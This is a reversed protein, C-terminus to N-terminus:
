YSSFTAGMRIMAAVAEDDLQQLRARVWPAYHDQTTKISTHTLLKSVNDLHWGLLLLEVAYTDRLMHSHFRMSKGDEDKFDLYANLKQIMIDYQTSLTEWKRGTNWFFHTPRFRPRAPSLDQLAQVVCDPVSRNEIRAGTKKTTLTLHKGVLGTRPLMLCDLIRLGAWRQLQFLAKLELAYERTEGRVEAIFPDVAALLQGFQAPTLPQTRVTNLRIPKLLAAPDLKLNGTGVCWRCFSKLRSQFHSASTKGIRSYEKEADPSWTGRWLDLADSTIDGVNTIEMDTAWEKIRRAAKDRVVETEHTERTLSKLWRDTADSVTLNKSAALVAKEADAAEIELLRRKVPDRRDREDQALTEAREWARTRASVIRDHGDEFIYLYKRCKCRRWNRDAKKPCDPTHRTFVSVTTTAPNAPSAM